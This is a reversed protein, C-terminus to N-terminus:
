RFGGSPGAYIQAEGPTQAIMAAERLRGEM